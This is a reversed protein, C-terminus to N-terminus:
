RAIMVPTAPVPAGLAGRLRLVYRGPALHAVPLRQMPALAAARLVTRGTPDALELTGGDQVADPFRIDIFSDAPNPSVVPRSGLSAANMAVDATPDFFVHVRGEDTEGHGPAGAVIMGEQAALSWGFLDGFGPDSPFLVSTLPLDLEGPMLPLDYVLIRGLPSGINVGPAGVALKCCNLAIAQGFGASGQIGVPAQAYGAIHPGDDPDLAMLVVVSTDPDNAFVDSIAAHEGWATMQPGCLYNVPSSNPDWPNGSPWPVQLLDGQLVQVEDGTPADLSSLGLRFGFHDVTGSGSFAGSYFLEDGFVLGSGGAHPVFWTGSRQLTGGEDPVLVAFGGREFPDSSQPDGLGPIGIILDTGSIVISTGFALDPAEVAAVIRQRYGWHDDGGADQDFVYVAGSPTGSVLENPASVYAHHEHLKVTYGFRANNSLQPPALRVLLDWEDTGGEQRRFIYAAGVNPGGDDAGPAGVLLYDGEISISWGFQATPTLDVPPPIVQEAWFQARGTFAPVLCALALLVRTIM